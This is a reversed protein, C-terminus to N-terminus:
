KIDNYNFEECMYGNDNLWESVLHRHCFDQPKEYCVLAINTNNTMRHLDSVVQHADLQSLVLRNFESIYYDDDHTEKWKSFFSWKPALKKYRLGNYFEPTKGCIAIPTIDQPLKKLMAFYTTYIM